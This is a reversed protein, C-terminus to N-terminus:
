GWGWRPGSRGARCGRRAVEPALVGGAGVDLRHEALEFRQRLVGFVLVAVRPERDHVLLADFAGEEKGSERDTHLLRKCVVEFRESGREAREVAPHEFVPAESVLVADERRRHQREGIDVLGTSAPRTAISLPARM